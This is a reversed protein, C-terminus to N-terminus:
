IPKFFRNTMPTSFLMRSGPHATLHITRIWPAPRFYGPRPLAVKHLIGRDSTPFTKRQKLVPKGREFPRKESQGRKAQGAFFDPGTEKPLLLYRGQAGNEQSQDGLGAQQQEYEHHIPL